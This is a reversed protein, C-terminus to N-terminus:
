PLTVEPLPDLSCDHPSPDMSPEHDGPGVLSLFDINGYRVSADEQICIRRNEPLEGNDLREPDLVGDWVIDPIPEGELLTALAASM